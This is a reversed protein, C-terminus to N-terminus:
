ARLDLHKGLEEAPRFHDLETHRQAILDRLRMEADGREASSANAPQAQPKALPVVTSYSSDIKM